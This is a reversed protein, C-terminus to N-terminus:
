RPVPLAIGRLRRVAVRTYVSTSEPDRHGLISSLVRPPAQQEVQRSAFSHRLAHGGLIPARVGAKAAYQRIAFRIASSTFGVHPLQHRIFLSRSPAEPPRGKRLYMALSRAVAALLPLQIEVGTKPRRVTITKTRWHIDDLKLGVIEASGLGYLSMMLLMAYDRLGHLTSRDVARLIRQVDSWPLARPPEVRRRPPCQISDTLDYKLRGTSHLFRFFVRLYSVRTAVTALAYRRRLEILYADMDVLGATRLTRGRPRLFQLWAEIAGIEGNITSDQASSHVKRFALYETLIPSLQHFSIRPESWSPVEVELAALAVSWAHMAIGAARQAECTDIRRRRAYRTAFKRVAAATLQPIPSVGRKGCDFLFRRVWHQYCIASSYKLGNRKWFVVAAQVPPFTQKTRSIRTRM